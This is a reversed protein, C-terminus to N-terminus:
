PAEIVLLGDLAVVGDAHWRVPNVELTFGAWPAAAAIQAFDAVFRALPGIEVGSAAKVVRLRELLDRASTEALPARALAVDDILEALGGGAGCSVMVGFVPDRFASVLIDMGPRAMAQLYVGELPAGAAAARANQAVFRARVEDESRLDLAVLGMRARHTVGAAIGKMALPFGLDRAAMLAESESTAFRGKAVPLGAAALIRHCAHESVVQGPARARIHASWDFSASAGAARRPARDLDRRLDTVKAIANIARGFEMFVFFGDKRAQEVVGAPALPWALCVTKRTADRLNRIIGALEKGHRGMAGCMFLITDIAGDQAIVDLAQPLREMWATQNYTVPTLDFPNGISAIPPLLAKLKQRSADSLPPTALGKRACQDAALVGFGGGFTIPAVNPGAPLKGLDMSDLFLVVDLMEEMSEVRIVAQESLIADWVRREGALAGTHAAAARASAATLGGKILVVPKEARRAAELAAIFRAGDRLGELYVAIVKTGDDEAFAKIFDATSLVAENGTSVMHRFGVGVQQALALCSSILGGSQGVYSIRGPLIRESEILFSAFTATMPLAGNIAGLCNPGLLRFGTEQCIAILEDQRARGDAGAEGFGGAWVVGSSIGVAACDRVVGAVRDEGVAIIALDVPEPLDAVSPLCPLGAVTARGPNVPHIAGPFGFRQLFGVAVGGLNGAVDSAGIVAVSRPSLLPAVDIFGESAPTM